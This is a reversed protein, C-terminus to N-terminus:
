EIIIDEMVGGLAAAMSYFGLDTPHCRDVTGEDGCLSCLEKGTILYVNKDGANVANEYTSCIVQLREEEESTLSYKPRSMIIIPLNPHAERITKFMKEHTNRLHEPNPANHDYDYVFLSMDLSKIYDAMADEGKANGSFGLNIYNYNFRRSIIEQYTRGPRSVCGGQTISSGYYVIPKKNRYPKPEEINAGEQLGIYLKKVGCYAPFNITIERMKRDPFTHIGEFMESDDMPPQFTGAHNNGDYIDFGSSGTFAFHTGRYNDTIETHIAVYGSDTIFRVRGGAGNTHLEYVGDSVSKAANEPMRRYKGNERFVGYVKFPAEDINYFNIDDREINTGVKFNKDIKSIDM